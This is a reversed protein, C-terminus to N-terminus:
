WFKYCPKQQLFQIFFVKKVGCERCKNIIKVVNKTFNAFKLLSKDRIVDDVSVYIAVIDTLWDELYVDLYNLIQRSTM